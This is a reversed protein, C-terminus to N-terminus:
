ARTDAVPFAFMVAPHRPSPRDLLTQPKGRLHQDFFARVYARTIDRTAPTQPLEWAAMM